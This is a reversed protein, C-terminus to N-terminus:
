KQKEENIMTVFLVVAFQIFEIRDLENLSAYIESLKDKASTIDM